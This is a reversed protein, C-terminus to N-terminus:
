KLTWIKIKGHCVPISVNKKAYTKDISGLAKGETKMKKENWKHFSM